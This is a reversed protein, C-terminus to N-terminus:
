DVPVISPVGDEAIVVQHRDDPRTTERWNPEVSNLLEEAKTRTAVRNLLPIEAGRVFVDAPTLTTAGAIIPTQLWRGVDKIRPDVENVIECFAVLRALRARRDPTIEGGRRWKRVATPSVGVLDAVVSWPLGLDDGLANLLVDLDNQGLTLARDDLDVAQARDHLDQARSALSHAQDRVEATQARLEFVDDRIQPTSTRDRQPLPLISSAVTASV